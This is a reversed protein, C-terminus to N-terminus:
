RGTAHVEGPLLSQVALLRLGELIASSICASSLDICFPSLSPSISSVSSFSRGLCSFGSSISSSKSAAIFSFRLLNGTRLRRELRAEGRLIRIPAELFSYYSPFEVFRRRPRWCQFIHLPAGHRLGRIRLPDPRPDPRILGRLQTLAKHAMFYAVHPARDVQRLRLNWLLSSAIRRWCPPDLLQTKGCVTQSLGYRSTDNHPGSTPYLM